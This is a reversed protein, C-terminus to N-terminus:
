VAGVPKRVITCWAFLNTELDINFPPKDYGLLKGMERTAADDKRDIVLVEFGISEYLERSYPSRGDAWPIYKEGPKAQGPCINYILVYGGPNLVDYLKQVFGRDDVGYGLMNQGDYDHEPHVYGRKLVNKSVFLDYGGGVDKCVDDDKPWIGHM